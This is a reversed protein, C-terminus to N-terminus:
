FSREAIKAILGQRAITSLNDWVMVVEPAEDSFGINVDTRVQVSKGVVEALCNHGSRVDSWAYSERGQRLNDHVMGAFTNIM